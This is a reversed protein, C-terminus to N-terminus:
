KIKDSTPIPQYIQGCFAGFLFILLLIISLFLYVYNHIPSKSVAHFMQVFSDGIDIYEQGAYEFLQIRKSLLTDCETSLRHPSNHHIQTLCNLQHGHGSIVDSCFTKLDSLCIEFLHRDSEIDAETEKILRAIEHKCGLDDIQKSLFRNKLCENIDTENSCKRHIERQCVRYLIPDLEINMSVERIINIIEIECTQSLTNHLYQQKLCAIVKGDLLENTKSERIINSCHRHIEIRCGSKLRPNLRYDQNQQALRKLVLSRCNHGMSPDNRHDRLCYIVDHLDSLICYKDIAIKCMSLLSYDVSNDMSEIYQKRFLRHQCARKLRIINSKLCELVHSEGPQINSCFQQRDHQCAQLLGPDLDIDENLQYLEERLMRHCENSIKKGIQNTQPGFSDDNDNNNSDNFLALSLCNIVDYKTRFNRCNQEIDQKCAQKFRPDFRFDKSNILQFHEIAHHCQQKSKIRYHNKNRILCQIVQNSTTSESDDDDDDDNIINDNEYETACLEQVISLCSRFLPYNLEFNSSQAITFNGIALRCKSELQQYNEQLCSMEYGKGFVQVSSCYKVLDQLCPAEIFPLLEVSSARQKMVRKIHYVCQKGIRIPQQQKQNDKDKNQHHNVHYVYRYLCAIVNPGREPDMIGNMMDNNQHWNRHAGCYKVADPHCADYIESDLEFNRAVFYQMQNLSERCEEAMQPSDIHEALCGLIRGNGPQIHRCLNDATSQCSQQLVPDVRWDEAFNVEKLLKEVEQQCNSSIRKRDHADGRRRKTKSHKMLCHLIKAGFEINPCFDHLDNQCADVLDPTLKYNEFLFRRHLLMEAQCEPLLNLGKSHVNELCLLIRSLRIEKRGKINERCQHNRIDLRCAQVFSKSIQYDRTILQERQILKDKCEESMEPDDLNSMLCKYIRGNGSEIKQCFHERDNRCAFYLPKDLHFDNSQLESIRLIEMQCQEPLQDIHKQLCQITNTQSHLDSQWDLRGCKWDQISQECEKTFKNILRYDSFIILEMQQLFLKCHDDTEPSIREILCSLINAGSNINSDIETEADLCDHNQKLLSKCVTKTIETFHDLKTVEMKFSWIQHQCQESLKRESDSREFICNMIEVNNGLIKEDHGCLEPLENKCKPNTSLLNTENQFLYHIKTLDLNTASSSNIVIIVIAIQIMMSYISFKQKVFM